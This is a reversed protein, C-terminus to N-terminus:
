KASPQYYPNTGGAHDTVDLVELVQPVEKRLLNAVGSKLTVDAMGCGQCGGGMELFVILGSPDEESPRVDILSIVGGHSAVAPNVERDLVEQVATWVERNPGSSPPDPRPAPGAKRDRPNDFKFGTETLTEVHDVETGRLHAASKADVVVSFEGADVLEDDEGHQGEPVLGMRYEGPATRTIRLLSPRGPERM